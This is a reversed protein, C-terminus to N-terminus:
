GQMTQASMGAYKILSSHSFIVIVMSVSCVSCFRSNLIPSDQHKDMLVEWFEWKSNEMNLLYKTLFYSKLIRSIRSIYLWHNLSMNISVCQEIALRM